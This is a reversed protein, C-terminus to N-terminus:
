VALFASPASLRVRLGTQFKVLRQIWSLFENVSYCHKALNCQKCCPVSNEVTYGISPDLRDIGNVPETKKRNGANRATPPQGCYTCPALVLARFQLRDLRFEKQKRTRASARYQAYWFNIGISTDTYKRRIGNKCRLLRQCGCSKTNGTTVATGVSVIERGCDCRFRFRRFATKGNTPAVESVVTLSHIRYGCVLESIAHKSQLQRWNKRNKLRCTKLM